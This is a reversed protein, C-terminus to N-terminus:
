LPQILKGHSHRTTLYRSPTLCATLPPSPRTKKAAWWSWNRRQRWLCQAVFGRTLDTTSFTAKAKTWTLYTAGRHRWKTKFAKFSFFTIFHDKENFRQNKSAIISVPDSSRIFLFWSGYECIESVRKVYTKSIKEWWIFKIKKFLIVM